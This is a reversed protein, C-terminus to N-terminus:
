FNRDNELESIRRLLNFLLNRIVILTEERKSRPSSLNRDNFNILKESLSLDERCNPPLKTGEQLGRSLESENYTM